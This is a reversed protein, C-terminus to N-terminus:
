NGKKKQPCGGRRELYIFFLGSGSSKKTHNVNTKLYLTSLIYRALQQKDYGFLSPNILSSQSTVLMDYVCSAISRGYTNYIDLQSISQM